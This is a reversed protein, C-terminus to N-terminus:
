ESARAGRTLIWGVALTLATEAVLLWWELEPNESTPSEAFFLVVGAMIFIWSLGALIWAASIGGPVRYPREKSPARYRLWVFAPFVATYSLLFCVGQLKFLMWFVNATSGALLANGVLLVSAVAGMLLFAVHPTKFRPHLRGLFSPLLGDRAAAAAVRNAGLSWTVINAICAYLFGIGLALVVWRAGAGMEEGLIELADWTGTVVSLNELPVALLIGLAGLGYLISVLAGSLLIARPVDRQPNRMEEGASSMLEFGLVNFVLVPL